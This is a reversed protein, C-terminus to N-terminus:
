HAIGRGEPSEKVRETMTKYGEFVLALEYIPLLDRMQRILFADYELLARCLALIESNGLNPALDAAREHLAAMDTLAYRTRLTNVPKRFQEAAVTGIWGADPFKEALGAIFIVGDKVSSAQQFAFMTTTLSQGMAGILQRVRGIDDGEQTALHASATHLEDMFSTFDSMQTAM